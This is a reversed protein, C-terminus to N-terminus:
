SETLEQVERLTTTPLVTTQDTVVGSEHKKVRRVEEAQRETYMNQHIFGLGGEQDLAIALCFFKATHFFVFRDHYSIRL